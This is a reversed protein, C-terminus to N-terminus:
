IAKMPFGYFMSIFNERMTLEGLRFANVHAESSTMQGGDHGEMGGKLVVHLCRPKATRRLSSVDYEHLKETGQLRM